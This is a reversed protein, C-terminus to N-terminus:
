ESRLRSLRPLCPCCWVARVLATQPLLEEVLSNAVGQSEALVRTHAVPIEDPVLSDIDLHLAKCVEEARTVDEENDARQLPLMHLLAYLPLM